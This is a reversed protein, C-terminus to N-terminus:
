VALCDVSIVIIEIIHLYSATVYRFLNSNEYKVFHKM